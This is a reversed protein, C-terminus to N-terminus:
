LKHSKLFVRKEAINPGIIWKDAILGISILTTNQYLGTFETDFFIKINVPSPQDPYNPPYYIEDYISFDVSFEIDIYLEVIQRSGIELPFEVFYNELGSKVMEQYSLDDKSQYLYISFNKIGKTLEEYSSINFSCYCPDYISLSKNQFTAEGCYNRIQNALEGANKIKVHVM